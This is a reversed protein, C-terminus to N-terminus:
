AGEVVVVAVDVWGERDAVTLNIRQEAEECGVDIGVSEVVGDEELDRLDNMSDEWKGTSEEFIFDGVEPAGYVRQM